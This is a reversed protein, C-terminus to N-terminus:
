KIKYYRDNKIKDVVITFSIRNSNGDKTHAIAEFSYSEKSLRASVKFTGDRQIKFPINASFIEFEDVMASGKRLQKLKVLTTGLKTNQPIHLFVILRYLPAIKKINESEKKPIKKVSQKDYVFRYAEQYTLSNKKIKNKLPKLYEDYPKYLVKVRSEYLLIDSYGIEFSNDLVFGKRKIVKKAIENLNKELLVKDYKKGIFDQSLLFAVETLTNIYHPYKKLYAGKVIAHLKGKSYKDELSIIYFEDDKYLKKTSTSANIQGLTFINNKSKIRKELLPIHVTGYLKAEITQIKVGNINASVDGYFVSLIFIIMLKYKLFKMRFGKGEM